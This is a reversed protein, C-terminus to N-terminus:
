QQFIKLPLFTKIERVSSCQKKTDIMHELWTLPSSKLEVKTGDRVEGRNYMYHIMYEWNDIHEMAMLDLERFFPQVSAFYRDMVNDIAALTSAQFNDTLLSTAHKRRHLPLM